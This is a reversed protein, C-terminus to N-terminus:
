TTNLYSEFVIEFVTHVAFVGLFVDAFESAGAFHRQRKRYRAIQHHLKAPAIVLFNDDFFAALAKRNFIPLFSVLEKVQKVTAFVRRFAANKVYIM